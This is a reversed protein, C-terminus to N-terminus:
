NWGKADYTVKKSYMYPYDTPPLTRVPYSLLGGWVFVDHLWAKAVKEQEQTLRPM